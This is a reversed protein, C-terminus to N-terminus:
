TDYKEYNAGTVFILPQESDNGAGSLQSGMVEEESWGSWKGEDDNVGSWVATLFQVEATFHTSCIFIAVTGTAIM